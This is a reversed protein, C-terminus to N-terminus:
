TPQGSRLFCEVTDGFHGVSGPQPNQSDVLNALPDRPERMPVAVLHAKNLVTVADVAGGSSIYQMNRVDPVTTPPPPPPATKQPLSIATRATVGPLAAFGAFEAVQQDTVNLVQFTGDGNSLAVRISTWGAVGTLAIGTRGDGNFDGTLVQVGPTAAFGAFEGVQPSTVNFVQFEGFGSPLAVPISAWGAVGTLAIGTRGDGRFDGTLVQVGPTAAFGAFEAEGQYTMNLVQFTGDGQSLAVPITELGAVGILAIDTRGFGGFNGTLVQVGPTAAFGAFEAVQQSTANVVQFTGDGSANFLAVPISAWGAVGTLAIGTRGDSTFDGVLAKVNPEQAWRAFDGTGQNAITFTGDGNSFAVPISDSGAGGVLAIDTRGDGNFDGTLVQVGPNVAL